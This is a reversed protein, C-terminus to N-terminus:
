RNPPKTMWSRLRRLYLTRYTNTPAGDDICEEDGGQSFPALCGPSGPFDVTVGRSIEIM